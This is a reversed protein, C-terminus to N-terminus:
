AAPLLNMGGSSILALTQDIRDPSVFDALAVRMEDIKAKFTELAAISDDSEPICALTRGSSDKFYTPWPSIKWTRDGRREYERMLDSGDSAMGREVRDWKLELGTGDCADYVRTKEVRVKLWRKWEIRHRLDLKSRMASICADIDTGDVGDKGCRLHFSAGSVPKPTTESSEFRKSMYLDIEVRVPKHGDVQVVEYQLTDIKKGLGASRSIDGRAM